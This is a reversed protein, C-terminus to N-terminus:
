VHLAAATAGAVHAAELGFAPVLQDGTTMVTGGPLRVILRVLLRGAGSAVENTITPWNPPPKPSTVCRVVAGPGSWLVGCSVVQGMAAVPGCNLAGSCASRTCDNAVSTVLPAVVVDSVQFPNLGPVYKISDPM